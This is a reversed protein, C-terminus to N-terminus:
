KKKERVKKRKIISYVHGVRFTKVRVSLIKEKNLHDEIQDFIMGKESLKSVTEYLFNQYKTYHLM